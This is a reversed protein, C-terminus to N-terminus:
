TGLQTRRAARDIEYREEEYRCIKVHDVGTLVAYPVPAGSHMLRTVARAAAAPTTGEWRLALVVHDTYPALRLADLSQRVSSSDLIVVDFGSRVIGVFAALRDPSLLDLPDGVVQGVPLFALPSPVLNIVAKDFRVTGALVECLGVKSPTGFVQHATPRRFDADVFLCKRGSMAIFRALATALTTKGDGSGPSTVLIFACSGPSHIIRGCISGIAEAVRGTPQRTILHQIQRTADTIRPVEGVGEVELRREVEEISRFGSQFWVLFLGFGIALGASGFVIAPVLKAPGLNSRVTPILARSAIRVEAWSEAETHLEAMANAVEAAHAPDTSTYSVRIAYTRPENTVRLNRSLVERAYDVERGEAADPHRRPEESAPRLQAVLREVMGPTPLQYEPRGTLQLHRVVRVALEPLRLLAVQTNVEDPDLQLKSFPSPGEILQNKRPDLVLVATATYKKPVTLVVALGAVMAIVFAVSIYGWRAILQRLLYQRQEAASGTRLNSPRALGSRPLHSISESM